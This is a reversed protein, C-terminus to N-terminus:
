SNLEDQFVDEILVDFLRAVKDDEFKILILNLFVIGKTRQIGRGKIQALPTKNLKNRRRLKM